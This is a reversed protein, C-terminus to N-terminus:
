ELRAEPVEEAHSSVDDDRDADLVARALAVIEADTRGDALARRLGEALLHVRREERDTTSVVPMAAEEEAV